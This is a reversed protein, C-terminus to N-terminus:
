FQGLKLDGHSFFINKNLNNLKNIIELLTDKDKEIVNLFTFVGRSKSSIATTNKLINELLVVSDNAKRNQFNVPVQVKSLKYVFSGLLKLISEENFDTNVSLTEVDKIYDSIVFFDQNYFSSSIVESATRGQFPQVAPLVLSSALKEGQARRAADHYSPNNFIAKVFIDTEKEVLFTM